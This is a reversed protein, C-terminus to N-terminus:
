YGFHLLPRARGNSDARGACTFAALLIRRASPRAREEPVLAGSLESGAGPAGLSSAASRGISYQLRADVSEDDRIESRWSARACGLGTLREGRPLLGM